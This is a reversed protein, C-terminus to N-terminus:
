AIKKSKRIQENTREIISIVDDYVSDYEREHRKYIELERDTLFDLFTLNDM